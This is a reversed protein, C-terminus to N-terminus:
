HLDYWNFGDLKPLKYQSKPGRSGDPYSEVRIRGLTAAETIKDVINWAAIVEQFSLFHVRERNIVDLLLDGHEPLCGDINCAISDGSTISQYQKVGEQWNILSINIRAEPAFEITLRNPEAAPSQFDFKEFEITVYTHKEDLKKGTRIYIPVKRWDQKDLFFRVAVFTDTRSTKKVGKQTRYSKYQGLVVNDPDCPCDIASLINYKERHLSNASIKGPIEMTVLALVQLLHSQIMDRVIGVQEFYGIRHDVGIPEFATIQINAIESGRMINSLVRNSHRLNLISQVQSKGLYHDLLYFQDEQFHQSVFHFLTEASDYNHGFPKEIVVRVDESKSSRSRSLGEIVPKFVVPPVSLYAIHPMKSTRGSRRLFKKYTKHSELDDYKGSFYYVHRLLKKLVKKDIPGKTHKKISKRFEERFENKTKKSRAFGVILYNTPLRKQLAMTYLAPFIKIQALDGSAGFITLVFPNCIKSISM